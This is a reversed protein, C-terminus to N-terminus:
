INVNIALNIGVTQFGRFDMCSSQSFFLLDCMHSKNLCIHSKYSLDCILKKHKPGRFNAAYTVFTIHRNFSDYRYYQLRPPGGPHGVMTNKVKISKEKALVINLSKM